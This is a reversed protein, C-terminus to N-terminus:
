GHRVHICIQSSHSSRSDSWLGKYLTSVVLAAIIRLYQMITRPM